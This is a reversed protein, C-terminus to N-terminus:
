IVLIGEKIEKKIDEDLLYSWDVFREFFVDKENKDMLRPRSMKSVFPFLSIEMSSDLINVGVALGEQTDKSFYQDFIFNGLSYFIPREKYIEMGQVVHPHHGIIIDVGSDILERAIEQQLNIFNHEYEVGWHANIIIYDTKEKLEEILVRLSDIDILGYVVSFGIMGIKKNNQKVIKYSCEGIIGDRCGSYNVDMNDLNERTEIIGREGQDFFHNNALNFFNISQGRSLEKILDPAFAFDYSMKPDYYLGDNTVAGELNLGVLDYNNFFNEENLDLFISELGDEKIKEGVHRDIMLDGFFLMKIERERHIIDGEKWLINSNDINLYFYNGIFLVVLFVSIFSLIKILEVIKKM